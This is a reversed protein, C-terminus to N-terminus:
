ESTRIYAASTQDLLKIGEKTRSIASTCQKQDWASQLTEGLGAVVPDGLRGAVRDTELTAQLQVARRM